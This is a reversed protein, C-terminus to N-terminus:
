SEAQFLLQGIFNITEMKEIEIGNSYALDITEYYTIMLDDQTILDINFNTFVDNLFLVLLVCTFYNEDSQNINKITDFVALDGDLVYNVITTQILKSRSLYSKIRYLDNIKLLCTFLYNYLLYSEKGQRILNEIFFCNLDWNKTELNAKLIWSIYYDSQILKEQDVKFSLRSIEEYEKRIILEDLEPIIVEDKSEVQNNKLLDDMNNM